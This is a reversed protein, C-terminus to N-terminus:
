CAQLSPLVSLVELGPILLWVYRLTKPTYCAGRSAGRGRVQEQFDIWLLPVRPGPIDRCWLRTPPKLFFEGSLVNAMSGLHKNRRLAPTM